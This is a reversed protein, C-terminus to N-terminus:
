RSRRSCLEQHIDSSSSAIFAGASSMSRFCSASNSAFLSSVNTDAGAPGCLNPSPSGGCFTFGVWWEVPQFRPPLQCPQKTLHPACVAEILWGQGHQTHHSERHRLLQPRQQTHAGHIVCAVVNEAKEQRAVAVHGRRARGRKLRTSQQAALTM